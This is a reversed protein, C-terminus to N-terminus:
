GTGDCGQGNRDSCQSTFAIPNASDAVETHIRSRQLVADEPHHNRMDFVYGDPRIILCARANTASLKSM